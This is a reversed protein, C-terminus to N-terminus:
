DHRHHNEESIDKQYSSIMEVSDACKLMTSGFYPNKTQDDMQLWFAGRGDFAMPCHLQYVSTAEGFGFMKVLVTLEDSLLSFNERMSNLDSAPQSGQLIKLLKSHEENWVQQASGSLEKANIASLATKLQVISKRATPLNDDALADGLTM